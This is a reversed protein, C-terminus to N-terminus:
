LKSWLLLHLLLQVLWTAPAITAREDEALSAALLKACTAGSTSRPSHVNCAGGCFAFLASGVKAKFGLPSTVLFGLCPYGPGLFLVHTALFKLFITTTSFYLGVKGDGIWYDTVMAIICTVWSALITIVSSVACIAVGTMRQDQLSTDNCYINLYKILNILRNIQKDEFQM